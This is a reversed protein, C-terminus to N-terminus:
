TAPVAATRMFSALLPRARLEDVGIEAAATTAAKGRGLHRMALEWLVARDGPLAALLSAVVSDPSGSGLGHIVSQIESARLHMSAGGIDITVNPQEADVPMAHTQM